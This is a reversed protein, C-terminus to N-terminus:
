NALSRCPRMPYRVVPQFPNTMKVIAVTSM